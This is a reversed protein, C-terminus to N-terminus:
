LHNTLLSSVFFYEHSEKIAQYFQPFAHLVETMVDLIEQLVLTTGFTM